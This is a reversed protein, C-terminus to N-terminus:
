NKRGCLCEPFDAMNNYKGCKCLFGGGGHMYNHMTKECGKCVYECPLSSCIWTIWGHACVREVLLDDLHGCRVCLRCDVESCNRCSHLGWLVVNCSNCCKTMRHGCKAVESHANISPLIGGCGDCRWRNIYEWINQVDLLKLVMKLVGRNVVGFRSIEVPTLWNLIEGLVGPPLSEM